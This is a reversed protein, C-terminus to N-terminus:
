PEIDKKANHMHNMLAWVREKGAEASYREEWRERASRVMTRVESPVTELARTLVRALDEADNRKAVWPHDEGAVEPLAGADSIVFPVGRSMAEAAVLGFPEDWVSPFVALDIQDFFERRDVWGLHTVADGLDELADRIARDDEGTGFRNEGALTLTVDHSADVVSKVARALVHPGKEAVLRGMFGLRVPQSSARGRWERPAFGLDSTWNELVRAGEVTSAMFASPVVLTPKGLRAVKAAKANMGRPIIHLEAIRPGQGATATAPVLGNCWLPVRRNRMRWARLAAMYQPRNRAKLAITSFGRREAEDLVDRPHSPGLVAVDYTLDRLAEAIALLMVEGGGMDGNNTAIVVDRRQAASM